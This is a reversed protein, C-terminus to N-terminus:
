SLTAQQLVRQIDLMDDEKLKKRLHAESLIESDLFVPKVHMHFHFVSQGAREGSNQLLIIGEPHFEQKIKQAFFKSVSVVKCLINEPIDYINEFHKKPLVLVHGKSFPNIDLMVFVDSDEYLKYSPIEGKVIKCFICSDM